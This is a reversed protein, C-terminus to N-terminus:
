YPHLVRVPRTQDEGSGGIGLEGFQNSGWCYAAGTTSIACTHYMGGAISKFLLDSSIRAPIPYKGAGITGDGIQGDENRGWCYVAGTPTIGCTYRAADSEGGITEFVPANAVLVPDSSSAMEDNGLQGWSNNGWCYTAGDSTLACTVRAADGGISEFTLNGTVRTPWWHDDTTGDGLHGWMNGGWCYAEGTATLACTHDHGATLKVFRLDSDIPLPVTGCPSYGCIESTTRGLQGADNLGWCYVIGDGTLACAHEWGTSIAVFTQGGAVAVPEASFLSDPGQAGLQGLEGSGWCYAHGDVTLACTLSTGASISKFMNDGVIRTPAGVSESRLGIGVKGDANNGWCYAVGTGTLACSHSAGATIQGWTRVVITTAESSAGDATAYVAATGDAIATVVGADVTAVGTDSSSWSFVADPVRSGGADNAVPHMTRSLGHEHFTLSSVGLIVDSVIQDVVVNCTDSVVDGLTAWVFAEGEQLATVVGSPSVTAVSPESSQWALSVERVTDLVADTAVAWVTDQFGLAAICLSDEQISLQEVAHVTVAVTDAVNGSAAVIRTQGDALSIVLGADTVEAIAPDTATWQVSPTFLPHGAVDLVEVDVALTDHLSHFQIEDRSLELRAARQEVVVQVPNSTAGGAHAEVTTQGDVRATVLGRSDVTAINRDSSVWEIDIHSIPNGDADTAVATLRITDAFSVLTAAAPTVVVSTVAPADTVTGCAQILVPLFMMLVCMIRWRDVNCAPTKRTQKM